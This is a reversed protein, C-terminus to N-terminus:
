SGVLVDVSRDVSLCAPYYPFLLVLLHIYYSNNFTLKWLIKSWGKYSINRCFQEFVKRHVKIELVKCNSKRKRVTGIQLIGSLNPLNYSKVLSTVCFIVLCNIMLASFTNKYTLIYVQPHIYEWNWFSWDDMWQFLLVRICAKYYHVQEWFYRHNNNKSM